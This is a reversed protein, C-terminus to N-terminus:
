EVPADTTGGDSGGPDPDPSPTGGGGDSGGDGSGDGGTDGGGDGSGDGGTDGGGTDGGDGSGDGTGDGSGDGGDGPSHDPDCDPDQQSPGDPAGANPRGTATPVPSGGGDPPPPTRCHEPIGTITSDGDKEPDESPAGGGKGGTAGGDGRPPEAHGTDDTAAGAGGGDPREQEPAGTDNSAFFIQERLQPTGMLVSGAIAAAAGVALVPRLWPLGTWFPSRRNQTRERIASLAEPSPEVSDAEARLIARLREETGEDFPESM